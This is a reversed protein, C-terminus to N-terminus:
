RHLCLSGRTPRFWATRLDSSAVNDHANGFERAQKRHILWGAPGENPFRPSQIRGIARSREEDGVQGEKTVACSWHEDARGEPRGENESLFYAVERLAQEAETM